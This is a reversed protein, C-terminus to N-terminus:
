QKQRSRWVVTLCFREQAKHTQQIFLCERVGSRDYLLLYCRIQNTGLLTLCDIVVAIQQEFISDRMKNFHCPVLTMGELSFKVLQYTVINRRSVILCFAIALLIHAQNEQQNDHLAHNGAARRCNM